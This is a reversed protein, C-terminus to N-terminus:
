SIFQGKWRNFAGGEDLPSIGIVAPMIIFLTAGQYVRMMHIYDSNANYSFSGM